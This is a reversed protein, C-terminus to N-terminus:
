KSNEKIKRALLEYAVKTKENLPVEKGAIDKVETGDALIHRIKM